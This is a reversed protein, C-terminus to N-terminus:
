ILRRFHNVSCRANDQRGLMQSLQISKSCSHHFNIAGTRGHRSTGEFKGRKVLNADVFCKSTETLLLSETKITPNVETLSFVLLLLIQNRALFGNERVSEEVIDTSIFWVETPADDLVSCFSNCSKSGLKPRAVIREVPAIRRDM